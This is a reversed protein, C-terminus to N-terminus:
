ESVFFDTIKTQNNQFNDTLLVHELAHLKDYSTGSPLTEMHKRLKDFIELLELKSLRRASTMSTMTADDSDSEEEEESEGERVGSLIDDDTLMGYCELGEDVRVYTEWEEESFQSPKSFADDTFCVHFIRRILDSTM